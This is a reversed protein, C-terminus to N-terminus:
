TVSLLFYWDAVTVPNDIKAVIIAGAPVIGGDAM